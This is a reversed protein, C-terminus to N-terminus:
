LHELAIMSYSTVLVANGEWYRDNDNMWYGHGTKDDIKQCRVLVKALEEKWNVLRNGGVPIADVGYAALCKSLVNYFFYLGQEGMGPNEELSWHKCAWDFASRVRVDDRDVKAHILALLGSYTISGYSRFVVVGERNTSAGAKPDTPNYFFGGANDPGSSPKNQMREIFKVTENWDIDARKEGDPRKDEVDATKSMAEVAYYTNLLDTYARQSERDYGFGGRYDDDGLYQAGAVFTRANQIIRTYAPNRTAHLAMMCIATNYNSLGGGKRGPIRTYIGGDPQVCSVIFAAAKEAMENRAPHESGLIAQLALGTLAPFNTDSWAGCPQQRAALWDAARNIAARVENALSPDLSGLPQASSTVVVRSSAQEEATASHSINMALSCALTAACVCVGFPYRSTMNRGKM